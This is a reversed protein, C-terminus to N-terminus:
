YIYIYIYICSQCEYIYIYIYICIHNHARQAGEKTNATAEGGRRRRGPGVSPGGEGGDDVRGSPRVGGGDDDIRSSPAIRGSARTRKRAGVYRNEGEVARQCSVVSGSWGQERGGGALGFPGERVTQRPNKSKTQVHNDLIKHKSVPFAQAQLAPRGRANFCLVKIVM